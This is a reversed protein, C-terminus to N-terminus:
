KSSVRIEYSRIGEGEKATMRMGVNTSYLKYIGQGGGNLIVDRLRFASELKIIM